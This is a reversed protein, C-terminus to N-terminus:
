NHLADAIAKVNEEPTLRPIECGSSIIGRAGALRQLRNTEHIIAEPKNQLILETPNLNGCICCKEGALAISKEYDVLPLLCLSSHYERGRRM